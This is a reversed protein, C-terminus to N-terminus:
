ELRSRIVKGSGTRSFHPRFMVEKPLEHRQLTKSMSERLTAIKDEPWPESEIVLVVAEGYLNHTKSTIYFPRHIFKEIKQELTEPFLKIGGSNIVHDKRGLVTFAGHNDLQVIDNTKLNFVGLEPATIELCGDETQSLSVGPLPTFLPSANNGNVKRLAIHSMTETMGYSHWVATKLSRIKEELSAPLPGGGLLVTNISEAFAKGVESQLLVAFQAPTFSAFDLKPPTYRSVPNGSPEICYLDLKGMIGRVVLMKAAIYKVPLCLLAKNGPKLAFFDLSLKASAEMHKKNLKVTKPTGTSGSTAATVTESESFWDILFYMLEKKWPAPSWNDRLHTYAYQLMWDKDFGNFNLRLIAKKYTTM